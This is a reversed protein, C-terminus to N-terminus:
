FALIRELTAVEEVWCWFLLNDCEDLGCSEALGLPQDLGALHAISFVGFDWEVVAIHVKVCPLGL